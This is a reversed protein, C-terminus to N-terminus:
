LGEEGDESEKETIAKQEKGTGIYKMELPKFLAQVEKTAELTACIQMGKDLLAITKDFAQETMGAQEGDSLRIGTEEELEKIADSVSQKYLLELGEFYTTKLKEELKMNNLQAQQQELTVKHSKIVYCKDIFAAINNLIVSTMGVGAGVALFTIWFSGVDVSDYQLEEGEVKFFPCRYLVFELEDICKRFESFDKCEPMRIDIGVPTEESFGMSEYLNVVDIMSYRLHLRAERIVSWENAEIDFEDKNRFIEPIANLLERAEEEYYPIDLMENVIANRAKEWGSVRYVSRGGSTKPNATLNKIDEMYKKSVLYINKLKM